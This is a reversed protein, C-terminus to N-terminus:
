HYIGYLEEYQQQYKLVNQVYERTEPYPIASPDAFDYGWGKEEMWEDVIGHGANYAALALVENGEYNKLLYAIYWTGLRINTEPHSLHADDLDDMDNQEAIWHATDPMLQMLGLAGRNSQAKEQYNSEQLIIAHILAPSVEEDGAARAILQNHHHPYALLKAVYPEGYQWYYLGLVLAGWAFWTKVRM